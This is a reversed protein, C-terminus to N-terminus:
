EHSRCTIVLFSSIGKLDKRLITTEGRPQFLVIQTGMPLVM